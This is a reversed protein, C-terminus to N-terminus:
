LTRLENMIRMAVNVKTISQIAAWAITKDHDVAIDNWFRKSLDQDDYIEVTNKLGLFESIVSVTSTASGGFKWVEEVDIVLDGEWPKSSLM